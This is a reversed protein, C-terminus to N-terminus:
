KGQVTGSGGFTKNNTSHTPFLDAFTTTINSSKWSESTKEGNFTYCMGNTTLSPEFGDCGGFPDPVKKRGLDKRFECDVILKDYVGKIKVFDNTKINSFVSKATDGWIALPTKLATHFSGLLIM